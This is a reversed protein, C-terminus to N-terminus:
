KSKLNNKSGGMCVKMWIQGTITVSFTTTCWFYKWYCQDQWSIVQFKYRGVKKRYFTHSKKDLCFRFKQLNVLLKRNNGFIEFSNRLDGLIKSSKRLNDFIKQRRGFNVWSTSLNKVVEFCPWRNEFSKWGIELMILSNRLHESSKEFM